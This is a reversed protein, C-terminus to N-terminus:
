HRFCNRAGFNRIDLKTVFWISYLIL